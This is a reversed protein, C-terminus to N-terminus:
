IVEIGGIFQIIRDEVEKSVDADSKSDSGFSEQAQGTFLYKGKVFAIFGRRTDLPVGNLAVTSGKPMRVLMFQSNGGLPNKSSKLVLVSSDPIAKKILKAFIHNLVGTLFAEEQASTGANMKSLIEAPLEVYDLRYFGGFDDLFQLSGDSEEIRQGISLGQPKAIKFKGFGSEYKNSTFKRADIRITSSTCNTLIHTCIIM